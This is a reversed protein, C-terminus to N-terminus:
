RALRSPWHLSPTGIRFPAGILRYNGRGARLFLPSSRLTRVITAEGIAWEASNRRLREIDARGGQDRLAAVLIREETTPLWAEQLDGNRKLLMVERMLEALYKQVVARPAGLFSRRKGLAIELDGLGIPAVDSVVAAIKAAAMKMPSPRDVLFFWEHERDLWRLDRLTGLARRTIVLRSESVQGPLRFRLSVMGVTTFGWKRVFREAAAEVSRDVDLTGVGPRHGGARPPSHTARFPSEEELAALLDVLCRVNFGPIEHYRALSWPERQDTLYEATILVDRTRREIPASALAIAPSPLPLELLESSEQRLAERVM